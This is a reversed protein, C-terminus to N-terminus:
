LRLKVQVPALEVSTPPALFKCIRRLEWAAYISSGPVVNSSWQSPPSARARHRPPVDLRSGVKASLTKIVGGMQFAALVWKKGTTASFRRNVPSKRLFADERTQLGM